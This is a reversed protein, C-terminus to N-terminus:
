NYKYWLLSAIADNSEIIGDFKSIMIKDKMFAFIYWSKTVFM